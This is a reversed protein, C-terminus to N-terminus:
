RGAHGWRPVDRPRGGGNGADRPAPCACDVVCPIGGGVPAIADPLRRFSIVHVRPQASPPPRQMREEEAQQLLVSGMPSGGAGEGVISGALVSGGDVMLHECISPPESARELLGYVEVLEHVKLEEAEAVDYMKLLVGGTAARAAWSSGNCPTCILTDGTSAGAAVGAPPRTRKPTGEEAASAQGWGQQEEEEMAEVSDEEAARKARSAGGTPATRPSSPTHAGVLCQQLWDARSPVPVCVVPTRQWVADPRGRMQMGAVESVTGQYKTTRLRAIGDEGICDYAGDYFEPDHVDQVMGCFRVLAGEPVTDTRVANLNPVADSGDALQARLWEALNAGEGTRLTSPDSACRVEFDSNLAALAAM